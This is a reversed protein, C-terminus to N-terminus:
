SLNNLVNLTITDVATRDAIDGSASLGNVWGQTAATFVQGSGSSFIGITASNPVHDTLSREEALLVFSSPSHVGNDHGQSGRPQQGDTESEVLTAAGFPTSVDVGEFIWHNASEPRVTFEGVGDTADLWSIGTLSTEPRSVPDAWWNYTTLDKFLPWYPDFTKDKYCIVRSTNLDFRVQFWCTNGAFFAANGGASVFTEVQDRMEKSWYEHHGVAVMLMYNGLLQVHNAEAKHLDTATCLEVAIGQRALWQIFPVQWRQWKHGGLNHPSERHPRGFAVQFARPLQHRPLPDLSPGFSWVEASNPLAATSTFGYLSRGGWFNYAECTVDPIVLVISSQSSPQAARVVFPIRLTQGGAADTRAYYLGSPWDPPIVVEGVPPWSPGDRYDMRGIPLPQSLERVAIAGVFTEELEQRYINLAFPGVGSNVYFNITDGPAVSEPKAYGELPADETTKQYPKYPEHLYFEGIRRAQDYFLLDTFGNQFRVYEPDSEWFKGPVIITWNENWGSYKEGSEVLAGPNGGDAARHFIFTGQGGGSGQAVVSPRDPKNVLGGARYFLFGTNEWGFNGPIILDAAPLGETTANQDDFSFGEARHDRPGTRAYWNVAYVEGHGTAAEYFLVNAGSNADAVVHTWSKRWGDEMIILEIEGAGKCRFIEGHGAGRDYLLLGAFDSNHDQGDDPIRITTLHTWSPRWGGHERKSVLRGDDSVDYLVALGSHQDYCLLGTRDPRYFAGAIIHTWRTPFDGARAVFEIEGQGNTRWFEGVGSSQAYFFLGSFDDGFFKGAVIHTWSDSWNADSSILEFNPPYLPAAQTSVSSALPRVHPTAQPMPLNEELHLLATSRFKRAAWCMGAYEQGLM